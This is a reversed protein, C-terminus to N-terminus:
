SVDVAIYEYVPRPSDKSKKYVDAYMIYKTYIGDNYWVPAKHEFSYEPKNGYKSLADQLTISEIFNWQIEYQALEQLIDEYSSLFEEANQLEVDHRDGFYEHPNSILLMYLNQAAEYKGSEMSLSFMDMCEYYVNTKLVSHSEHNLYISALNNLAIGQYESNELAAISYWYIANDIQGTKYSLDALKVQAKVDGANAMELYNTNSPKHQPYLAFYLTLCAFFCSLLTSLSTLLNCFAEFKSKDHQRRDNSSPTFNITESKQKNKQHDKNHDKQHYKVKM